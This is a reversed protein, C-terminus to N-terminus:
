IWHSNTFVAVDFTFSLYQSWSGSVIISLLSTMINHSMVILVLLSNLAMLGSMTTFFFFSFAQLSMSFRNGYNCVCRYFHCLFEWFYLGPFQFIIPYSFWSMVLSLLHVQDPWFPISFYLMLIGPLIEICSVLCHTRRPVAWIRLLTRDLPVSSWSIISWITKLSPEENM